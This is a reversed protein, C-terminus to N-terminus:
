CKHYVQNVYDMCLSDSSDGTRQCFGYQAYSNDCVTYGDVWYKDKAKMLCAPMGPLGCTKTELSKCKDEAWPTPLCWKIAVYQFGLGAVRVDADWPRVCDGNCYDYNSGWGALNGPQGVKNCLTVGPNNFKPGFPARGGQEMWNRYHKAANVLSPLGLRMLATITFLQCDMGNYFSYGGMELLSSGTAQVAKLFDDLSVDVQLYQMDHPTGSFAGAPHKGPTNVFMAAYEVNPHDPNKAYGNDFTVEINLGSMDVTDLTWANQLNNYGVDACTFHENLVDSSRGPTFKSSDSIYFIGLHYALAGVATSQYASFGILPLSYNPKPTPLSAFGILPLSYNPKPTPLSALRVTDRLKKAEVKGDYPHCNLKGSLWGKKAKMRNNNPFLRCPKGKLPSIGQKWAWGKCTKTENKPWQNNLCMEWCRELNAARTKYGKSKYVGEQVCGSVDTQNFPLFYAREARVNLLTLLFVFM